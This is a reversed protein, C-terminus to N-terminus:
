KSLYDNFNIYFKRRDELLMALLILKPYSHFFLKWLENTFFLLSSSM